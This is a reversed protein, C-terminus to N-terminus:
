VRRISGNTQVQYKRGNSAAIITGPDPWVETAGRKTFKVISKPREHPKMDALAEYDGPKGTLSPVMKKHMILVSM